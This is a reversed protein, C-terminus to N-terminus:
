RFCEEGKASIVVSPVGKRKAKKWLDQCRRDMGELGDESFLVLMDPDRESVPGSVQPGFLEGEFADWDSNPLEELLPIDYKGAVAAVTQDAGDREGIYLVTEGEPLLCLYNEIENVDRWSLNGSALVRLVRAGENYPKGLDWLEDWEEGDNGEIDSGKGQDYLAGEGTNLIANLHTRITYTWSREYPSWWRVSLVRFQLPILGKRVKKDRVEVDYYLHSHRPDYFYGDAIKILNWQNDGYCSYSPLAGGYYGEVNTSMEPLRM